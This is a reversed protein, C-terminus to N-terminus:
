PLTNLFNDVSEKSEPSLKLTILAEQRAMDYERIESYFYALSSHYQANEPNLTILKKFVFILGNYDLTSGYANGLELLRKETYININLNESKELNIKGLDTNKSYIESIAMYFYCNANNSNLNICQQSYDKAQNYDGLIIKLKAINTFIEQHKPALQLAKDFYYEAQKVLENDKNVTEEQELIATTLEGLSIWYRTYSPQIEVAEKLVEIGKETYLLINEPYYESCIKEIEIYEMRVYSDLFSHKLLNKNMLELATTCDKQKALATAKNIDGNIQLPIFNYQWLFIIFFLFLFALVLPKLVNNKTISQNNITVKNTTLYLSYAIMLFLTLYVSFTDLSFFGSVLYGIIATQIGHYILPDNENDKKNKYKQLQWFLIIFLSIQAILGLIGAQVATDLFINHSRDWWTSWIVKSDYNRDIGVSQNEPGWGIIPKDKIAKTVIQWAKFREDGLSNKISLRNIIEVTLKNELIKPIYPSNNTYILVSFIAFLLLIISSRLTKNKKPYFFLFYLLGATIGLYVARTGSILITFLFILLSIIYFYKLYNFGETKKEKIAFVLTPFSLLLLYIALIIPNGMTSPPESIVPVFISSFLGYYQIIALASVIIGIFISFIWAKEWDKKNLFLFFMIAYIFCFAFNIFGGGRFPSGWFSFNPDVSFMSALLFVIFYAGMAWLIKNNKLDVTPISERKNFFQFTFLIILLSIITRLVISKGWDAPFFYPPVIFAPLALIILFGIKYLYSFSDIKKNIETM